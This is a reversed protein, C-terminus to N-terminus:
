SRPFGSQRMRATVRRTLLIAIRNEQHIGRRRKRGLVDLQDFGELPCAEDIHADSRAVVEQTMRIASDSNDRHVCALRDPESQERLDKAITVERAILEEGQEVGALCLCEGYGRVVRNGM